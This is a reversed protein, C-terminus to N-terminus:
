SSRMLSQRESTHEASRGYCLRLAQEGTEALASIRVTADILRETPSCPGACSPGTQLDYGGDARPTVRVAPPTDAEGGITLGTERYVVMASGTPRDKLLVMMLPNGIDGMTTGGYFHDLIQTHSWPAGALGTAYGFSGFQGM